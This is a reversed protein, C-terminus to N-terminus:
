AMFKRRELRQKHRDHCPKCLVQWNAKDWFIAIDGRHPTAHDVVTAPAQCCACAPHYALFELRAKNWAATYGRQRATPRRADARRNDPAEYVPRGLLTALQGATIRGQWLYSGDSDKLKRVTAMTARNMLWAGNRAYESKIAYFVDILADATM